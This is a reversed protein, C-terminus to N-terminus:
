SRSCRARSMPRASRGTSLRIRRSLNRGHRWFENLDMRPMTALALVEGTKPQMVVLTGSASAAKPLREDILEEMAMQIERDITLVLSAGSLCRPFKEARNPDLPVLVNQIKGALLANFREEVGFYGSTKAASLGWSIRAWPRRRISGAWSAAYFGSRQCAPCIGKAPKM